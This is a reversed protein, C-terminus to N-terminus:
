TGPDRAKQQIFLQNISQNIVCHKNTNPKQQALVTGPFKVTTKRIFELLMLGM